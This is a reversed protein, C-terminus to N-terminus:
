TCLQERNSGLDSQHPNYSEYGHRLIKNVVVVVEACEEALVYLREAEAPSLGHFHDGM